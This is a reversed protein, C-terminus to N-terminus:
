LAQKEGLHLHHPTRRPTATASPGGPGTPVDSLQGLDRSYPTHWQLAGTFVTPWVGPVPCTSSLPVDGEGLGLATLARNREQIDCGADFACTSGPHLLKPMFLDGSNPLPSSHTSCSAPAARGSPQKWVQLTYTLMKKLARAANVDVPKEAPRVRASTAAEM